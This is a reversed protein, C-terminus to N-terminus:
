PQRSAQQYQLLTREEAEHAAALAAEEMGKHAQEVQLFSLFILGQAHTPPAPVQLWAVRHPALPQPASVRGAAAQPIRAPCAWALARCAMTRHM